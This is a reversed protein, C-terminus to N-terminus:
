KQVGSSTPKNVLPAIFRSFHATLGTITPFGAFSIAAIAPNLTGSLVFIRTASSSPTPTLNGSEASFSLGTSAAYLTFVASSPMARAASITRKPPM